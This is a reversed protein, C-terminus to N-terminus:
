GHKRGAGEFVAMYSEATREWTMSRSSAYARKRMAQRLTDNTLM